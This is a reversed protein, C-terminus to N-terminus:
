ARHKALSLELRDILRYLQRPHMELDRAARVVNGRARSLAAEIRERQPPAAPAPEGPRPLASAAAAPPDLAAGLNHQEIRGGDALSAAGRLATRLQRINGPMPDAFLRRAASASIAVQAHGAEKLLHVTLLGLDERRERLPLLEITAGALRRLLDARFASADRVSRSNTAAIWRVDVTQSSAGGLPTVTGDELVRLLKGQASPSLNGVEDFFLSGGDARVIAGVHPDAAGTFAGRRHGFFTSEILSDPIAGCDLVIFAGARGSAEHLARAIVDKGTGTEGLILAPQDTRALRVLDRNALAVRPHATATPGFPRAERLAELEDRTCTRYVLLGHGVEILDGDLLRQETARVGNVWTGNRSGLDRLIRASGSRSLTVHRTSAWRDPLELRASDLAPARGEGGSVTLEKIGDIEFRATVDRCLDDFGLVYTLLECPPPAQENPEEWTTRV